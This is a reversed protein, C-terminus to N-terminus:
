EVEIASDTVEVGSIFEFADDTFKVETLGLQGQDSAGSDQVRVRVTAFTGNPSPSSTEGVRALVYLATGAANDIKKPGQAPNEGLFDGPEIDVVHLVTPDFALTIEGASVGNLGTEVVIQFEIEQGRAAQVLAPEVRVAVKETPPAFTPTTTQTTTLVSMPTATAATAPTPSRAPTPTPGACSVLPVVCAFLLVLHSLRM